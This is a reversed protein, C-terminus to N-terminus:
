GKGAGGRIDRNKDHSTGVGVDRVGEKVIIHIGGFAKARAGRRGSGCVWPVLVPGRAGSVACVAADVVQVLQRLGFAFGGLDDSGVAEVGEEREADVGPEGGAPGRPGVAGQVRVGALGGDVVGGAGFGGVVGVDGVEGGVVRAVQHVQDALGRAGPGEGDAVLAVVGPGEVPGVAPAQLERDLVVEGHGASAAM